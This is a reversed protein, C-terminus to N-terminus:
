AYRSPKGNRWYYKREEVIKTIEYNTSELPPTDYYLDLVIQRLQSAVQFERASIEIIDGENVELNVDNIVSVKKNPLPNDTVSIDGLNTVSNNVFSTISISFKSNGTLPTTPNNTNLTYRIVISKLIGTSPIDCIIYDKRNPETEPVVGLLIVGQVNIRNRFFGEITPDSSLPTPPQPFAPPVTTPAQVPPVTTPAQVPPVTTPAQVPPVTTPAQAPPVTTPASTPATTPLSQVTNNTNNTSKDSSLVIVTIIGAIIFCIIVIIAIRWKYCFSLFSSYTNQPM